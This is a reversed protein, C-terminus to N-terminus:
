SPIFVGATSEGQKQYYNEYTEKDECQLEAPLEQKGSPGASNGRPSCTQSYNMDVEEQLSSTHGAQKTTKRSYNSHREGTDCINNEA